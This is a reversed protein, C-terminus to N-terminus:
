SVSCKAADGGQQGRACPRLVELPDTLFFGRPPENGVASFGWGRLSARGSLFLGVLAGHQFETQVLFGCFPLAACWRLMRECERHLVCRVSHERSIGASGRLPASPHPYPRAPTPEKEWTLVPLAPVSPCPQQEGPHTNRKPTLGPATV